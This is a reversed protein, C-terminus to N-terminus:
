ITQSLNEYMKSGSISKLIGLTDLGYTSMLHKHLQHIKFNIKFGQTRFYRKVPLAMPGWIWSVQMKLGAKGKHATDYQPFWKVDKAKLRKM